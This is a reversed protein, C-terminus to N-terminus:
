SALKGRDPANGTPLNLGAAACGGHDLISGTGNITINAVVLGFCSAGNSSKNVAGSFTVSSHPLYVLGTIDWTPSNGAASIDVGSTLGPDQYIAVGKWTGSTPAQIDLTGGGTPAHTYSGSSTGSFIMTLSSGSATSLTYGNTDLQGNEIVLVGASSSITTDATLQVDGCLIKNGSWSVTGSLQNSSPLPPDKKKAPEQPYSSCTNAPINSALGSYPDTVATVNSNQINGCGSNTLRADGIDANTNHGHCTMDANSYVNCGALNAFPVGNALFATGTTDLALVCYQRPTTGKTAIASATLTVAPQGNVTTNGSYGVVPTLYLQQKLSITVSYCNNGGAPCSAANSSTVTVNNAGDTYGYNAAVAAAEANYSSTGNTSAAIAAEDAANQMDRQLQYWSATEMGIGFAGILAPAVLAFLIAINGRESKAFRAFLKSPAQWVRIATAILDPMAWVRGFCQRSQRRGSKFFRQGTCHVRRAVGFPKNVM